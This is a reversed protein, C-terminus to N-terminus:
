ESLLDNVWSTAQEFIEDLHQESVFSEAYIKYIPETGSPRAAFWGNGTTVKIGGFQAGNGAAKTSIDSVTDGALEPLKVKYARIDKFRANKDASSATDVRRYYSTGHQQCLEDYYQGPNKGTKALVEAALLAMVIGDKDTTWTNGKRDLLTAGASEEGAFAISQEALGKAFWKFGVPVEMLPRENSSVVRDIMASSVLTKGIAISKDWDRHKCLYDIAVSLYHNPNLLGHTPTVIGHRDYDPDNGFALHYNDKLALLSAMAFPSSCDMRIKGDKDLPMFSFAPDVVANRVEISLNYHEAIQQWYKVGSGGMADVALTLKADRIASMDICDELQAIYHKRWDVFTLKSHQLVDESECTNVGVLGSSLLANAYKEIIRTVDSDAPGGHPPNYKFGGDEPPNHSPTIVVGDAKAKHDRNWEIVARSLVPTPTYDHETQVQVEIGNGIFVDLASIYASESLAHTDKAVMIPGSIDQEERYACIAQAIALIHAENFSRKFSSGRHGSTGFSVKEAKKRPDPEYVYYASTLQAINTLDGAQALQGAREHNAM